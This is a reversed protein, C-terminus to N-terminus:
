ASRLLIQGSPPSFTGADYVKEGRLFTAYVKGFLTRGNYPTVKHRHESHSAEVIFADDPNWAVLDADRGVAIAGKRGELGVLRATHASMWRVVDPVDFGRERAATWVISLSFQLSAIGGWAKLFDGEQLLKLAPPCPSHDSAVCDLVGERLAEWLLENNERERIPPACKFETAGDPIDESTFFLYHPCTEATMPLGEEKAARLMPIVDSSSVHVIHVSCGFERCLRIMLEVADNEWRRPRTALYARYSRPDSASSPKLQLALEAHVLLPLKSSAIAPMASRLDQEHVCPFEDIGSHVLFAKVGLVGSALLSSLTCANDPVLGGHFGCDVHLKGAAAALKRQLADVSTTVPSCNLPMDVLTTVGGAAAARTATEFGEWETRGPENIHVHPDVIGPMLVLTGLDEVRTEPAEAPPLLALIKGGEVHVVCDRVGEPTVVRRSRIFM